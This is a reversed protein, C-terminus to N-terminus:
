RSACRAGAEYVRVGRRDILKDIQRFNRKWGVFFDLHPGDIASGRDDAVVCGDHVFGGWPAEGPMVLGDLDPIYLRTGTAILANDVAVSRFPALARDDVGIGWDREDTVEKFCATGSWSCACRDQFNILRGDTLVGTGEMALRSLFSVSIAAVPLCMSDYVWMNPPAKTESEEAVWYFTMAYRGLGPGPDQPDAAATSTVLLVALPLTRV